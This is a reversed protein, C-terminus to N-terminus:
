AVQAKEGDEETCRGRAWRNRCENGVRREESRPTPRLQAQHSLRLLQLRPHSERPPRTSSVTDLLHHAVCRLDEPQHGALSRYRPSARRLFIPLADHLSLSSACTRAPVPVSLLVARPRGSCFISACCLLP